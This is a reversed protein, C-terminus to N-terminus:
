QELLREKTERGKRLMDKLGAEDGAEMAAKFAGLTDILQGTQEALYDANLLFLETWMDENLKAVRTMDMFSGASFGMHGEAAPSQVYASSVVHALQSTLAILEDHRQPTAYTIRGFGLQTFFDECFDLRARPTDPTPTLIMSAGEFLGASAAGYGSLERGAMPHGGIYDAGTDRLAETIGECVTRKVGCLDVVLCGAPIEGAHRRVFEVAAHPYLAVLLLAAGPDIGDAARDIAGEALAAALTGADLDTGAVTHTTKAKIAKAFSGGILGLGIIQTTM